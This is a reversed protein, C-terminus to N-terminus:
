RRGLLQVGHKEGLRVLANSGIPKETKTEDIKMQVRVVPCGAGNDKILKCKEDFVATSKADNWKGLCRDTRFPENYQANSYMAIDIRLDNSQRDYRATTRFWIPDGDYDKGQTKERQFPHEEDSGKFNFELDDVFLAPNQGDCAISVDVYDCM